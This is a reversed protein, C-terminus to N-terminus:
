VIKSFPVCFICPTRAITLFKTYCCWTINNWLRVWCSLSKNSVVVNPFVDFNCFCRCPWLSLFVNIFVQQYSTSPAIPQQFPTWRLQSTPQPSYFSWQNPYSNLVFLCNACFPLFLQGLADGVRNWTTTTKRCLADMVSLEHPFKVSM